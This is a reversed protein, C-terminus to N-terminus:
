TARPTHRLPSRGLPEKEEATLGGQLNAALYLDELV